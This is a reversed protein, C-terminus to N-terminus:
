RAVITGGLMHMGCIYNLTDAVGAPIDIRVAQDLPLSRRENLAPILIETACTQDTKRTM